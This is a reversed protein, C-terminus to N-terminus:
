DLSRTEGPILYEEAFIRDVDAMVQQIFPSNNHKEEDVVEGNVIGREALRERIVVPDIDEFRDYEEPTFFQEAKILQAIRRQVKPWSLETEEPSGARVIFLGKNEDGGYERSLWAATDKDRAHADMYRVVARKSDM